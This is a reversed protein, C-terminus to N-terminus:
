FHPEDIYTVLIPDFIMSKVLYRHELGRHKVECVTELAFDSYTTTVTRLDTLFQVGQRGIIKFLCEKIGWIIILPNSLGLGEFVELESRDTFRPQIKTLDRDYFEIDISVENEPHHILSLINSTHSISIHHDSTNLYPKGQADREVFANSNIRNKVIWDSSALQKARLESKGHHFSKVKERGIRTALEDVNTTIIEAKNKTVSIYPPLIISKSSM